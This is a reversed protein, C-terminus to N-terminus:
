PGMRPKTTKSKERQKGAQKKRQAKEPSASAKERQRSLARAKRWAEVEQAQRQRQKQVSEKTRIYNNAAVKAEHYAKAASEMHRQYWYWPNLSPWRSGEVIDPPPADDYEDMAKSYAQIVVARALAQFIIVVSFTFSRFACDAHALPCVYPPLPHTM